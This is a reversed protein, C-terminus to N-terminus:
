GKEGGKRFKMLTLGEFFFASTLLYNNLTFINVLVLLISIMKLWKYNEKKFNTQKEINSPAYIAVMALTIIHVAPIMYSQYQIYSASLYFFHVAFTSTLTCAVANKLHHGGAFYRLLSFGLTCIVVEKLDGVIVGSLIILSITVFNLLLFKISYRMINISPTQEPNVSKLKNAIYLSTSDIM